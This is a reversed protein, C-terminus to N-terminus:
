APPEFRTNRAVTQAMYSYEMAVWASGDWVTAANREISL